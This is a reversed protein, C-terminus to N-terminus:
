VLMNLVCFPPLRNWAIYTVDAININNLLGIQSM